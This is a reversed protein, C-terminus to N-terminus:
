SKDEKPDEEASEKIIKDDDEVAATPTPAGGMPAGGPPAGGLGGGMDGGLGGGMDGLGGGMDGLGGGMGSGLGGGMGMDGGPAGAGGAGPLQGPLLTQSPEELVPADDDPDISRIESLSKQSIIQLEKNLKIDDIMEKRIRKQEEEYNLDLSRYLTNRSVKPPNAQNLQMIVNTYSDLDYLNMKNWEIEPILLQRRGNKIEYFEQVKSIPAFIKRELWQKIVNRFSMYRDRLVELGVSASSYSAWEQDLLAPPIMLGVMINKVIFELDSQVDLVAGSFGVRQVDVGQHTFIKFNKDYEAEEFVHRWHELDAPSPRYEGEANGGIKVLTIPNIMMDAQAFKSERIKDYLMLDKYISVIVSTGRIDYPHSLLKLHSINFNDLPIPAGKRVYRLMEEPIQQRLRADVPNTSTAIRQLTADPKLFVLPDGAVMARKLVIYDPNQVILRSWVGNDADFEAFVFAEGNVWYELALSYLTDTLNIDEAMDNFFKEIKPDKCKINLKSIPYTSHLSIANKVYPNTQYFARNWANMTVRDRPLNLNAFQYLPSYIEPAIRTTGGRGIGARQELNEASDFTAEKIMDRYAASHGISVLASNGSLYDELVPHRNTGGKQEIDARKLNSDVNKIAGSLSVKEGRRSM